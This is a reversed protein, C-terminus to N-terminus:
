RTAFYHKGNIVIGVPQSFPYKFFYGTKGTSLFVFGMGGYGFRYALM